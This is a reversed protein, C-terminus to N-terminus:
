RPGGTPASGASYECRLPGIDANAPEEPDLMLNVRCRTGNFSILLWQSADLRTLYAEGDHGVPFREPRGDIQVIAGAPVPVGSPLALRVLANRERRAAFEVLVGTRPLTVVQTTTRDLTVDMPVTLPDIAITIGNLAPVQALTLEGNQTRGVDQNSQLVRVGDLKDVRVVAFSQEIPQAFMTTDGVWAIGGTAAARMAAYGHDTAAEVTYRGYPGAYQVGGAAVRETNARV